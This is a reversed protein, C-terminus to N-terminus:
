DQIRLFTLSFVNWMWMFILRTHSYENKGKMFLILASMGEMFQKWRLGSILSGLSFPADKCEAVHWLQVGFVNNQSCMNEIQDLM